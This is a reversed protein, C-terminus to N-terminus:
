EAVCEVFAKKGQSFKPFNQHLLDRIRLVQLPYTTYKKEKEKKHYNKAKEHKTRLNMNRRKPCELLELKEIKNTKRTDHGCNPPLM